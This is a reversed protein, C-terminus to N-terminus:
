AARASRLRRRAAPTEDTSVIALKLLHEGIESLDQAAGDYGCLLARAEAMYVARHARSLHQEFVLNSEGSPVVSM